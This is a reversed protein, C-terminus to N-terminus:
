SIPSVKPIFVVTATILTGAIIIGSVFGYGSDIDEDIVFNIAAGLCSLLVVNYICMAILKSDNLAEVQVQIYYHAVNLYQDKVHARSFQLFRGTGQSNGM